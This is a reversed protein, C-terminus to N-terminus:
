VEAMELKPVLIHHIAFAVVYAFACFSFLIAYGGTPNADLVMGAVIPFVM